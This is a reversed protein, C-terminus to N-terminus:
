TTELMKQYCVLFWKQLSSGKASISSYWTSKSICSKYGLVKGLERKFELDNKKRYIIKTNGHSFKVTHFLSPKDNEM